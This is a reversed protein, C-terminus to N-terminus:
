PRRITLSHSVASQESEPAVVWVDKSLKRAVKELIKIGTSLYGDDNTVLIRCQSLDAPIKYFSMDPSRHGGGRGYVTEVCGARPDHRGEAPLEGDGRDAGPGRCHGLRQPHPRVAHGERGGPPVAG